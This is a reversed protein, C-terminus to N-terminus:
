CKMLAFAYASYKGHHSLSFSHELKKNAVYLFPIGHINKQIRFNTKHEKLLLSYETILKRKLNSEGEFVKFFTSQNKESTATSHINTATIKSITFYVHSDIRVIGQISEKEESFIECQFDLPNYTRPLNFRRQHAKYAAEKLSWCLQLWIKPNEAKFIVAQEALSYLKNLYRSSNWNSSIPINLDIIDNGIM